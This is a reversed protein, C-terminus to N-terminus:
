HFVYKQLHWHFISKQCGGSNLLVVGLILMLDTILLLSLFLSHTHTYTHTHSLSHSACSLALASEAEM